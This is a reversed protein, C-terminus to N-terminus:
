SHNGLRRLNHTDDNANEASLIYTCTMTIYVVGSYKHLKTFKVAELSLHHHDKMICNCLCIGM